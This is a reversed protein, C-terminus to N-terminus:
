FEYIKAPIINKLQNNKPTFVRWVHSNRETIDDVHIYYFKDLEPCYIIFYDIENKYGNRIYKKNKRHISVTSFTISGDSLRGTKVQIRTFNNNQEIVLDYRYNDGFPILVNCGLEILKALVKSESLDGLTKSNGHTIYSKISTSSEDYFLESIDIIKHHIIYNILHKNTLKTIDIM